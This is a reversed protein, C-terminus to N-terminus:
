LGRTLNYELTFLKLLILMNERGYRCQVIIYLFLQSYSGVCGAQDRALVHSVPHTHASFTQMAPQTVFKLSFFAVCFVSCLVCMDLPKSLVSLAKIAIVSDIGNCSDAYIRHWINDRSYYDLKVICIQWKSIEHCREVTLKKAAIAAM